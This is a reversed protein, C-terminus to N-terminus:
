AGEVVPIFIHSKFKFTDESQCPVMCSDLDKEFELLGVVQCVNPQCIQWAIESAAAPPPRYRDLWAM